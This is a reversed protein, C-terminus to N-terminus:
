DRGVDEPTESDVAGVSDLGLGRWVLQTREDTPDLALAEDFGAAAYVLLGRDELARTLRRRFVEDDDVVLLSRSNPQINM